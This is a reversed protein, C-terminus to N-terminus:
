RKRKERMWVTVASVLLVTLMAMLWGTFARKTLNSEQEEVYRLSRGALVYGGSSIPVVVVAERVGPVPEWTIRNVGSTRATELVGIPLSALAGHLQGTGTIVNGNVDYVNVYPAPDSAIDFPTGTVSVKPVMGNGIRGATERALWEQPENALMRLNQQDNVYGIALVVTAVAALPLGLALVTRLFTPSNM